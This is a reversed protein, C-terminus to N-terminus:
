SVRQPKASNSGTFTSRAAQRSSAFRTALDKGLLTGSPERARGFEKARAARYVDCPVDDTEGHAGIGDLTREPAGIGQGPIATDIRM